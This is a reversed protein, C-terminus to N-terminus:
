LHRAFNYYRGTEPKIKSKRYDRILEDASPKELIRGFNYRETTTKADFYNQITRGVNSNSHKLKRGLNHYRRYRKGLGETNSNPLIKGLNYDSGTNRSNYKSKWYDGIWDEATDIRPSPLALALALCGLVILLKM